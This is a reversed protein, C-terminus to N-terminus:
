HSEDNTPVAPGPRNLRPHNMATVLGLEKRLAAQKISATDPMAWLSAMYM